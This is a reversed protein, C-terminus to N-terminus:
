NRGVPDAGLPRVNGDTRCLIFVQEPRNSASAAVETDDGRKFETQMRELRHMATKQEIRSAVGDVEQAKIAIDSALGGIFERGISRQHDAMSMGHNSNGHTM